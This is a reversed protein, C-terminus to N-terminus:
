LRMGLGEGRGKGGYKGDGLLLQEGIEEVAMEEGLLLVAFRRRADARCEEERREAARDESQM